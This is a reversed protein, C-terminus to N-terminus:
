LTVTEDEFENGTKQVFTKVLSINVQNNRQEERRIM